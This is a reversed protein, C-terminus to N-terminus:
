RGVVPRELTLCCKGDGTMTFVSVIHSCHRFKIKISPMHNKATVASKKKEKTKKADAEKLFIDWVRDPRTFDAWHPDDFKEFHLM